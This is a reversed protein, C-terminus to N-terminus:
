SHMWQQVKSGKARHLWGHQTRATHTEHHKTSPHRFHTSIRVNFHVDLGAVRAAPLPFFFLLASQSKKPDLHSKDAAAL